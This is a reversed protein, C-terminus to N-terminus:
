TTREFITCVDHLGPIFSSRYVKKGSSAGHSFRIIDTTSQRFGIEFCLRKTHYVLPVFGAEPDSYDGMLIALRGNKTLVHHCNQFIKRLRFLFDGLTKCTSIDTSRNSYIKQRWYPPHLWVFDFTGIGEFFRPDCADASKFRTTFLDSSRCEIGLERCVDGCTGSGTMPDLVRKPQFYLFLDKILEGSCNGPYRADGYDGRWPKHYLSTLSPVPSTTIPARPLVAIRASPTKSSFMSTQFSYFPRLASAFRASCPRLALTLLLFGLPRKVRSRGHM